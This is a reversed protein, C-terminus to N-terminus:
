ELIRFLERAESGQSSLVAQLDRPAQIGGCHEIELEELDPLKALLRGLHTSTDRSMFAPVFAVALSRLNRFASIKDLAQQSGLCVECQDHRFTLM